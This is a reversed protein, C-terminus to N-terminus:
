DGERSVDVMTRLLGMATRLREDTWEVREILPMLQALPSDPDSRERLKRPRYGAREAVLDYDLLLVDAIHQLYRGAPVRGNIWRSVTTASAGVKESFEVQNMGRARIMSALWPGFTESQPSEPSGYHRLAPRGGGPRRRPPDSMPMM